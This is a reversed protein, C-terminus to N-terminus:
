AVSIRRPKTAEAKPITVTLIGDQLTASIKETEIDDPLHMIRSFTGSERERRHYKVSQEEDPIRREGSISISKNTAQIDLADAALGPLEARVFYNDKNQTLNVPPFVGTGVRRRLTNSAKEFQNFIDSNLWNLDSFPSKYGFDPYRSLNKLFM